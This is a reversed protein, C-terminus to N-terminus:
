EEEAEALSLIVRARAAAEEVRPHRLGNQQELADVLESLALLPSTEARQYLSYHRLAVIAEVLATQEQRDFNKSADRRDPDALREELHATRREIV